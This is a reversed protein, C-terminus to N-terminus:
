DSCVPNTAIYGHKYAEPLEVALPENLDAQVFADMTLKPSDGIWPHHLPHPAPPSLVVSGGSQLDRFPDMGRAAALCSQNTEERM